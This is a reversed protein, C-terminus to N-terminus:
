NPSVAAIDDTKHSNQNANGNVNAHENESEVRGENAATVVVRYVDGNAENKARVTEGLAASDMARAVTEVDFQEIRMAVTMFQGKTVIAPRTIFAPEFIEGKKLDRSAVNGVIESRTIAPRTSPQDLQVRKIDIDSAIIRQGRSLPRTLVLQEEFIPAPAAAVPAPEETLEPQPQTTPANAALPTPPPATEAPNETVKEDGVFIRCEASGTFQLVALNAGADHLRSKIDDITVHRVRPAKGIKAILTGGLPDMIPADYDSWKCVDRLTINGNGAFYARPQLEIVAGGSNRQIAMPAVAPTAAAPAASSSPAKPGPASAGPKANDMVPVSAGPPLILGGRGWQAFLTQTAWALLTLIVMLQVTKRISMLPRPNNM